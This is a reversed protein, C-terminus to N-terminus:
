PLKDVHEGGAVTALAEFVEASVPATIPRVSGDAFLVNIAVPRSVTFAGGGWHMSGFQGRMGVYPQDDAILGRVTAWGGATWPGGNMVETVAMTTAAGDKIDPLSLKREFGFFGARPDSLPLEAANEGLGAIGVYHTPGPLSPDGRAPNAPCLFDRLDREQLDWTAQSSKAYVRCRPPNNTEDDWAKSKDLLSECDSMFAPWVQTVWSLRKNSPLADNPVTAAPFFRFTDHYNRLGMGIWKLNNQCQTRNALNRVNSVFKIGLGGVILILLLIVLINRVRM